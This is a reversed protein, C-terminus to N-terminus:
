KNNESFLVTLTWIAITSPSLLHSLPERPPHFLLGTTELKMPFLHSLPLSSPTGNGYNTISGLSGQLIVNVLYLERGSLEGEKGKM